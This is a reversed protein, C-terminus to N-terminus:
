YFFNYTKFISINFYEKFKSNLEKSKEICVILLDEFYNDEIQQKISEKIDSITKIVDSIHDKSTLTKWNVIDNIKTDYKNNLLKIALIFIDPDSTSVICYKNSMNQKGNILDNRINTMETLFPKMNNGDPLNNFTTIIKGFKNKNSTSIIKNSGTSVISAYTTINNIRSQSIDKDIPTSIINSITKFDVNLAYKILLKEELEEIISSEENLKKEADLVRQKSLELEENLKNIINNNNNITKLKELLEILEEPIASQM